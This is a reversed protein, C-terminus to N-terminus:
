YLLRTLKTRYDDALPSRVGIVHFIEVMLEKAAGERLESSTQAARFLADLAEEYRKESALLEGLALLLKADEGSTELKRRLEEESALPKRERINLESGVQEIREAFRGGPVLQEVLSAGQELDGRGVLSEALGLIAGQHRPDSELAERYLVEAREPDREREGEAKEFLADAESPAISRIFKRVSEEPIAGTFEAVVNGERFAMVAPIGRVGFAQAQRPSRDVNMKALLFTGNEETAVRELVPGLVRCPGCWEAWFDVVVPLEKSKDLVETQFDEDTVDKVWEM